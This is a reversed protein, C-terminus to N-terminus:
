TPLASIVKREAARAGGPTPTPTTNRKKSTHRLQTLSRYSDTTQTHIGIYEKNYTRLQTPPMKLVIHWGLFYKHIAHLTFFTLVCHFYCNTTQSLVLVQFYIVNRQLCTHVRVTARIINTKVNSRFQSPSTVVSWYRIYCTIILYHEHCPSMEQVHPRDM